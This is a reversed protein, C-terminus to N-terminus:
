AAQAKRWADLQEPTYASGNVIGEPKDDMWWDIKVGLKEVVEKKAQGDCFITDVDYNDKLFKFEDVWDKEPCRMTVITVKHGNTQFCRIVARMTKPDSTYTDDYDMALHM